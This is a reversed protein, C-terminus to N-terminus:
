SALEGKDLFSCLQQGLWFQYLVERAVMAVQADRFLALDLHVRLSHNQIRLSLIVVRDLVSPLMNEPALNSVLLLVETEHSNHKM